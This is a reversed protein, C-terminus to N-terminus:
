VAGGCEGCGVAFTAWALVLFKTHELPTYFSLLGPHHSLFHTFFWNEITIQTYTFKLFKEFIEFRFQNKALVSM